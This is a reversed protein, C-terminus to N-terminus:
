EVGFSMLDVPTPGELDIWEINDIAGGFRDQNAPDTSIRLRVNGTGDGTYSFFGPLFSDQAGPEASWAGPQFTFTTLVSDNARLVEIQVGDSGSNYVGRGTNIQAAPGSGSFSSFKESLLTVAAAAPAAM